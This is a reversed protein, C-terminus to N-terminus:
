NKEKKDNDNRRPFRWAFSARFGIHVGLVTDSFARKNQHFQEPAKDKEELNSRECREMVLSNKEAVKDLLAAAM